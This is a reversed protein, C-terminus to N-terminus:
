DILGKLSSYRPFNAPHGEGAQYSGQCDVVYGPPNRTM